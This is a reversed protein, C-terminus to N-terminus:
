GRNFHVELNPLIDVGAALLVTLLRAINRSDDLGCHERGQFILGVRELMDVIGGYQINFHGRFLRRVDVVRHWTTRAGVIRKRQCEPALFKRVDWPGDTVICFSRVGRPVKRTPALRRAICFHEFDRLVHDLPKAADVADQEVGTLDKCFSSLTPRETPRVFSHFEFQVELTHANVFIGPFEIIEHPHVNVADCTCEFDVVCYFDYRPKPREPNVPFRGIDVPIGDADAVFSCESEEDSDTSAEEEEVAQEEDNVPAKDCSIPGEELDDSTALALFRNSVSGNGPM